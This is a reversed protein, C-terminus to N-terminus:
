VNSVKNLQAPSLLFLAQKVPIYKNFYNVAPQNTIYLTEPSIITATINKVYAASIDMQGLDPSAPFWM